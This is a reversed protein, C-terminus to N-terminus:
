GPPQSPQSNGCVRLVCPPISTGMQSLARRFLSLYAQSSRCSPDWRFEPEGGMGAKVSVVDEKERLHYVPM